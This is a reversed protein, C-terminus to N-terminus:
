LGTEKWGTVTGIVKKHNPEIWETGTWFALVPYTENGFQARCLLIKTKGTDSVPPTTTNWNNKM